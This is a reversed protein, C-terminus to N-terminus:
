AHRVQQELDAALLNGRLRERLRQGVKRRLDLRLERRRAQRMGSHAHEARRPAHRHEHLLEGIALRIEVLLDHSRRHARRERRVARERLRALTKRRLIADIRGRERLALHRALLTLVDHRHAVHLPAIRARQQRLEQGLERRAHRPRLRLAPAPALGREHSRDLPQDREDTLLDHRQLPSAEGRTARTLAMAKQADPRDLDRGRIPVALGQAGRVHDDIGLRAGLEHARLEGPELPLGPQAHTGVLRQEALHDMEALIGDAHRAAEIGREELHRLLDDDRRHAVVLAVERHLVLGALERVAERRHHRGDHLVGRDDALAVLVHDRRAEGVRLEEEGLIPLLRERHPVLLKRPDHELRLEALPRLRDAVLHLPEDRDRPHERGLDARIGLERGLRGADRLAVERRARDALERLQLAHHPPVVRRAEAVRHLDRGRDVLVPPGLPM